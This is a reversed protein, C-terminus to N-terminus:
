HQTQNEKTANRTDQGINREQYTTLFALNALAHHLHPLGSEADIDTGSWYSLLHRQLAAYVRGWDMGKEWNRPNTGDPNYKTDGYTLVSALGTLAEPPVLDLRLKAQDYKVGQM